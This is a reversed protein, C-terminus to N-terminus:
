KEYRHSMLLHKKVQPFIVKSAQLNKSNSSVFHFQYQVPPLYNGRGLKYISSIQVKKEDAQVQNNCFGIIGTSKYLDIRSVCSTPNDPYEL